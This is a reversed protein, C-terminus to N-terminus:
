KRSLQKLRYQIYDRLGSGESSFNEEILALKTALSDPAINSSPLTKDWGAQAQIVRWANKENEVQGLSQYLFAIRVLTFAHLLPEKEEEARNRLEEELFLSEELAKQANHQAISLSTAAFRAHLPVYQATYRNFQEEMKINKDKANALFQSPHSNQKRNIGTMWTVTAVLVFVGGLLGGWKKFGASKGKEFLGQFLM